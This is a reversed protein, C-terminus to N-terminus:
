QNTAPLAALLSSFRRELERAAAATFCFIISISRESSKEAIETMLNPIIKNILM